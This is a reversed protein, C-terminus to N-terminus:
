AFHQEPFRTSIGMLGRLFWIQRVHSNTHFIHRFYMDCLRPFPGVGCSMFEEESMADMNGMIAEYLQEHIAQVEKVTPFRDGPKPMKEDPLGWLNFREEWDFFHWDRVPGKIGRRYQLNGNFDDLQQLVHIVYTAINSRGEFSFARFQEDTLDHYAEKLAVHAEDLGMMMAKKLDMNRALRNEPISM